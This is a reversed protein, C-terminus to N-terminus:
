LSDLYFELDLLDVKSLGGISGHAPTGCKGFRDKISAACGDHLLPTRWGVGVLPPVQFTGGTGVDVTRNDTLKPGSHCTSCGVDARRFIAQGRRASAPDIWSPAPPAPIAQVWGELADLQGRDLATGNMRVTYVDNALTDLDPEDGPWHYPATGAITGRLSPTRRTNSDLTWVFGDDGGEPHCSACAIMGGAEAHFVDHGTDDRTTVALGIARGAYDAGGNKLVYLEAPERSQVLVEGAADFAVATPQVGQPLSWSGDPVLYPDLTFVEDLGPVLGNGAAVVAIEGEPSVAVDVPLVAQSLIAQLPNGGSDFRTVVSEVVSPPDSFQGGYGGPISAEVNQTFQGQHAVVLSGSPGAVTRWAVHSAFNSDTDPVTSRATITGERSVSLVQASRFKTVTLGADSVLVDRLDRELVFTTVVPGGGARLAVLEGTACAVWVLDAPGDWALGRPAPCSARRSLVVGAAPDITAIAGAGRLAVHVRGAGDEILRGPEDGAQLRVTALLKAASADVVYVADRDPDAAVATHGDALVILTGGSIPPPPVAARVTTPFVPQPVAGFGAGSSSGTSCDMGFCGFGPGITYTPEGCGAALVVGGAVLVAPAVFSLKRPFSM